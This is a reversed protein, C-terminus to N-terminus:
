TFVRRERVGGTKFARYDKVKEIIKLIDDIEKEPIKKAVEQLYNITGEDIEDLEIPKELTPQIRKYRNGLLASVEQDTGVSNAAMYYKVIWPLWHGVGSDGKPQNKKWPIFHGAKIWSMWGEQRPHVYDPQGTGLSVIYLNDSGVVKHMRNFALQSPNNCGMGGDAFYKYEGPENNRKRLWVKAPYFYSPGASTARGVERVFELFEYDLDNASGENFTHIRKTKFETATILIPCLADSMRSDGFKETLLSELGESSYGPRILRGISLLREGYSRSTNFIKFRNEGLYLNLLDEARFKPKTPTYGILLTYQFLAEEDNPEIKRSAKLANLIREFVEPHLDDKHNGIKIQMEEKKHAKCYLEDDKCFIGLEGPEIKKLDDQSPNKLMIRLIDWNKKPMTLGLALIGGTSTGGIFDFLESISKGTKKELRSLILAPIIGRIGGGDISLAIKKPATSSLSISFPSPSPSPSKKTRKERIQLLKTALRPLDSQKIIENAYVDLKRLTAPDYADYPIKYIEPNLGLRNYNQGLLQRMESDVSSSAGHTLYSLIKSKHLLALLGGSLNKDEIADDAGVSLMYVNSPTAVHRMGRFNENRRSADLIKNYVLQSTNRIYLVGDILSATEGDIELDVAPVLGPVSLSARAVQWLPFDHALDVRPENTFVHTKFDQIRVSTIAVNTQLDSLKLDKCVEVEQLVGRERFQVKLYQEFPEVLHQFRPGYWQYLFNQFTKLKLPVRNFDINEILAPLSRKTSITLALLAGSSTGGIYDFVDCLTYRQSSQRQIEQDLKDLVKTSVISKVGSGDISLGTYMLDDDENEAMSILSHKKLQTQTKQPLIYSKEEKLDLNGFAQSTYYRVIPTTRKTLISDMLTTTRRLMANAPSCEMMTLVIALVVFYNYIKKFFM